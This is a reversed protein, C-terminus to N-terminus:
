HGTQSLCPGFILNIPYFVSSSSCAVAVAVTMLIVPVVICGHFGEM